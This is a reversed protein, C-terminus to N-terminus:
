DGDYKAVGSGYFSAWIHNNKDETISWCSAFVYGKKDFYNKVDKGNFSVLGSETGVWLKGQKSKYISRITNSPLGDSENYNFFQGYLCNCIILAILLSLLRTM